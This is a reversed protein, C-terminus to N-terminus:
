ADEGAQTLELHINLTVDWALVDGGSPLEMQWDFGFDRRDFATELEIAVRDNGLPDAIPERYSGTATVEKTIGAITLEGTVTAKGEDLEVSTSRFTVEPHDAAAFFEEGLVHGRFQEPERISISEVKAAGELSLDGEEATLTASVDDLTGRYTSIGNHLVSFGFVSHVPDAEYTGTLEKVATATM